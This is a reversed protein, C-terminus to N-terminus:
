VFRLQKKHRSLFPRYRTFILKVFAFIDPLVCVVNYMTCQAYHSMCLVNYLSCLVSTICIVDYITCQVFHLMCLVDYKMCLANYTTRLTLLYHFACPVYYLTCLVDDLAYYMTCYYQVNCLLVTYLICMLIQSIQLVHTSYMM